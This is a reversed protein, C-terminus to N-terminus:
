LFPFFAKTKKNTKKNNQQQELICIDFLALLFCILNQCLSIDRRDVSFEYFSMQHVAVNSSLEFDNSWLMCPSEDFNNDFLTSIYPYYNLNISFIM